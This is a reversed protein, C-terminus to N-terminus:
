LTWMNTPKIVNYLGISMQETTPKAPSLVGKM